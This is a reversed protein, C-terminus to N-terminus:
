IFSVAFFIGHESKVSFFLIVTEKSIKSQSLFFRCSQRDCNKVMFSIVLVTKYGSKKLPERDRRTSKKTTQKSKERGNKECASFEYCCYFLNMVWFVTISKVWIVM